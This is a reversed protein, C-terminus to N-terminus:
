TQRNPLDGKNRAIMYGTDLLINGNDVKISAGGIGLGPILFYNDIQKIPFTGM